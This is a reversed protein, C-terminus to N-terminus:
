RRRLRLRVPTTAIATGGVNSIEMVAKLKRTGSRAILRGRKTLRLSVDVTQGPAVNAIGAAFRIRRPARASKDNGPKNRLLGPPVRAVLNIRNTCVAGPLQALNCTIPVTCGASRCPIPVQPNAVVAEVLAAPVSTVFYSFFINDDDTPNSSFVQIERDGASVFPRLDYLEDDTRLGTSGTLPDPNSSQDGFGGVTILGGDEAIGDDEGGASSTLRQGNVDVLNVMDTGLQGQFSHGIGLGMDLRSTNAAIPSGLNVRFIEGGPAQDGFLLIVSNDAGQNPDNFIVVLVTGNISPTDQEVVSIGILGPPSADVTPAVIATVDAFVNHFFQPNGTLGNFVGIDWVVPVGALSVDGNNIVRPCLGM